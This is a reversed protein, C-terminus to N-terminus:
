GRRDPQHTSPAPIFRNVAWVVLGAAALLLLIVGISAWFPARDSAQGALAPGTGSPDRDGIMPLVVLAILAPGLVAIQAAAATRTSTKM